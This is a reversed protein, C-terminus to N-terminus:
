INGINEWDKLLLRIQLIAKQKEKEGVFFDIKEFREEISFVYNHDVDTQIIPKIKGWANQASKLSEKAGEWDSNEIFNITDLLSKSFGYNKDISGQFFACSSLSLLLLASLLKKM